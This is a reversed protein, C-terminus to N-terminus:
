YTVPPSLLANKAQQTTDICKSLDNQVLEISNPESSWAWYSDRRYQILGRIYYDSLGKGRGGAYAVQEWLGQDRLLGNSDYLDWGQPNHYKSWYAVNMLAACQVGINFGAEPDPIRTFEDVVWARMEPYPGALAPTTLATVALVLSAALTRLKM